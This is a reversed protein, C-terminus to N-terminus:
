YAWSEEETEFPYFSSSYLDEMHYKRIFSQFNDTFRKGTYELGAAASLGAGAGVVIYEAEQIVDKAKRIREPYSYLM